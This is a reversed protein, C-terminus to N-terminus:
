YSWDHKRRHQNPSLECEKKFARTFAEHSEFGANIAINIISLDKINILKNISIVIKALLKAAIAIIEDNFIFKSTHVSGTKEGFLEKALKIVNLVFM